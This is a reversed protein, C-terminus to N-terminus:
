KLASGVGAIGAIIGSAAIQSGIISAATALGGIGTCIAIYGGVGAATQKVNSWTLNARAASSAAKRDARSRAGGDVAMMEEKVLEEFANVKVEKM